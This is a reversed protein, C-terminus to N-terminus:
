IDENEDVTYSNGLLPYSNPMIFEKPETNGLWMEGNKIYPFIEKYTAANLNGIVLYKKNVVLKMFNRWKSFPPNSIIVDAENNIIDIIEQSEFDGNGKLKEITETNGDYIYKFAGDGLDYNTCILKKLGINHFERKFYKTFNSWRYDDCPCYVVIDKLCDWYYGVENEIDSIKTYFEDKKAKKAERMNKNTSM